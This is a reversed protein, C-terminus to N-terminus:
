TIASVKKDEHSYRFVVKYLNFTSENPQHMGKVQHMGKDRSSIKIM